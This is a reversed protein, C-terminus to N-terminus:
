AGARTKTGRGTLLARMAGLVLRTKFDGIPLEAAIRQMEGAHFVQFAKDGRHAAKLRAKALFWAYQRLRLRMARRYEQETLVQAGYRALMRILLSPYTNVRDAFSATITDPHLRSTTLAEHVFGYDAHQFTRLAADTDSHYVTEDFFPRHKRVVDAPFLVTTPSGTGHLGDRTAQRLADHGSMFDQTVPMPKDENMREGYLRHASVIGVSPYKEAVAVMKELCDPHLLDDACLFKCYRSAPSMFQTSRSFSRHPNVFETCRVVRIRSDIAAYQSAIEASRDASCNDAIVYEWDGRTQARVSEICAALYQEGNYVPTIVSIVPDM